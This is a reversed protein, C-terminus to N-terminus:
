DHAVLERLEICGGHTLVPCGRALAAAAALDAAEIQYFGGIAEKAEAFPGDVVRNDAFVLCGEPKLQGAGALQGARRLQESWAFYRELLQQYQEPTYDQIGADGGRLLLIFQAM